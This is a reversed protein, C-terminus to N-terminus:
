TIFEMVNVHAMAVVYIDTVDNGICKVAAMKARSHPWCYVNPWTLDTIGTVHHDKHPVISRCFQTFYLDISVWCVTLQKVWECESNRWFTNDAVRM